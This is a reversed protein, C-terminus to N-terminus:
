DRLAESLFGLYEHRRPRRLGLIESESWHYYFALTHVERLLRRGGAKLEEFFFATLDFPAVFMHGCEPCTLDLELEMRPAQREMEEVVATREDMTLPLGGNDLICRDLLAEAAPGIEMGLLAEQDGGTPLRFRIARGGSEMEYAATKQPRKEVPTDGTSFNVDMKEACHLCTLVANVQDGLSLRRLHLMLYDRDGVLLHRVLSTSVPEGGISVLCSSLLRTVKAASPAQSAHALWEEEFGLVPRLTVTQALRGDNLFLGGPVELVIEGLRDSTM